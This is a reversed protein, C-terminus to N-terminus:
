FDSLNELNLNVDNGDLFVTKLIKIGEYFFQTQIQVVFFPFLNQSTKKDIKKRERVM